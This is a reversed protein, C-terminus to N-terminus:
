MNLYSETLRRWSWSSFWVKWQNGLGVTSELTVGLDLVALEVDVVLGNGDVVLSVGGLDLPSGGTGVVDDLSGTDEGCNVLGVGVQLTTGLLDDDRSRGGIGGHENATDVELRVLGLVLNDGVSRAGGVTQSREGLDDVVVYTTLNTLLFAVLDQRHLEGNNLTQHGGDVGGGGGLLGNVTRGVTRRKDGGTVCTGRQGLTSSQRPPRPAAALMMGDEVPAALATPLTM